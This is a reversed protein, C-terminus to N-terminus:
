VWGVRNPAVAIAEHEGRAVTRCEQVREQMEGAYPRDVRFIFHEALWRYLEVIQLVEALEVRFAGAMRLIAPGRADLRGGAGEALTHSGADAHRHGPAPGRSREVPGAELHEVEVDVGQAAIPAHHLADGALGRRQGSM